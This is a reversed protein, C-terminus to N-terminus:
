GRTEGHRESYGLSTDAARRAATAAEKSAFTGLHRQKGAAKVACCWVGDRPHWYVGNAGSTNRRSLWRNKQNESNTVVRLNEIRNDSPDGNAHDIQDGPWAGNCLARIIRHNQYLRGGVKTSWYGKVNPSGARSGGHKSNWVGRANANAFHERPRKKWRLCGETYTFCEDLYTLDIQLMNKAWWPEM